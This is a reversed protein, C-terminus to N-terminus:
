TSVTPKSTCCRSSSQKNIEAPSIMMMNTCIRPVSYVIWVVLVHLQALPTYSQVVTYLLTLHLSLFILLFCCSIFSVVFPNTTTSGLPIVTCNSISATYFLRSLTYDSERKNTIM